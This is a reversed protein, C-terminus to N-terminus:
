LICPKDNHAHVAIAPPGFDLPNEVRDELKFTALLRCHEFLLTGSVGLQALRDFTVKPRRCTAAGQVAGQLLAGALQNGGGGGALDSRL